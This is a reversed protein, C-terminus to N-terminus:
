RQCTACYWTARQGQRIGRVTSGCNVCPLGGRGYVKLQLEFWGKRGQEDHFDRLTTGGQRIAADLVARVAAAIRDYRPAAIRDAQRLPHVGAIWLAENAYINGVGAVTTADMLFQKIATRRGRSRAHLWAGGFVESFPEPGIDRLLEHRLPDRTTWLALGFRRPDRYRLAVGDALVIDFHDHREPAAAAPVLRLSGSMGLHLIVSGARTRLLLYKARREVSDITQGPLERALRLPLPRRLRRERMVVAAVRRGTLAPAIGRRTTEVEPLEPM